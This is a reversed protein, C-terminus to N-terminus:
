SAAEVEAAELAESDVEPEDEDCALAVETLELGVVGSAALPLVPATPAAWVPAGSLPATSPKLTAPPSTATTAPRM